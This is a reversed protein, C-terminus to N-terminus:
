RVLAGGLGGRYDAGRTLRKLERAMRWATKYTVGLRRGLERAPMGGRRGTMLYIAAFWLALPTRSREFVTGACPFLHAGCNQCAYGRRRRMPHFRSRAMCRPCYLGTGGYKIEMIAALCRADDPYLSKFQASSFRSM